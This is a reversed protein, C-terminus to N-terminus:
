DRNAVLLFEDTVERLRRTLLDAIAAVDPRTNERVIARIADVHQDILPLPIRSTEPTYEVLRCMSDAAAAVSPYGFTAAQGKIDHAARFLAERRKSDFGLAKVDRRAEDLRRCEEEMWGSFESGLRALAAEARAVPDDAPDTRAVSTIAKRLKNVPVIVEHDAYTTVAPKDGKSQSM